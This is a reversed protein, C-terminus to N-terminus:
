QGLQLYIICISITDYRLHMGRSANLVRFFLSSPYPLCLSSAFYRLAPAYRDVSLMQIYHVEYYWALCWYQVWIRRSVGPWQCNLGQQYSACCVSIDNSALRRAEYVRNLIKDNARCWSLKNFRVYIKSVYQVHIKHVACVCWMETFINDHCIVVQLIFIM